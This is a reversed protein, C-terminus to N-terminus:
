LAGCRCLRSHSGAFLVLDAEGVGPGDVRHGGGDAGEELAQGGLRRDLRAGGVGVGWGLGPLQPGLLVELDAGDGLVDGGEGSGMILQGVGV